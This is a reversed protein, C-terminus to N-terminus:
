HGWAECLPCGMMKTFGVNPPMPINELEPFMKTLIFFAIDKNAWYSTHSTVAAVYSNGTERVCYDMRYALRKGDPLQLPVGQQFMQGNNMSTTMGPQGGAPSVASAALGSLWGTLGNSQDGTPGGTAMAGMKGIDVNITGNAINVPLQQADGAAVPPDRRVLAQLPLQGYPVKYQDTWPYIHNPEIQAYIKMFIPEIRYAVPDCPHYVNYLYKVLDRPLIHDHYDTNTPDRWRLSM